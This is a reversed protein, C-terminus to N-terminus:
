ASSPMRSLTADRPSPSTYLLCFLEKEYVDDSSLNNSLIKVKKMLGEFLPSQDELSEIIREWFRFMKRVSYEEENFIIPIVKQNLIPDQEIAYSLRLLLSTKGMGRKGEILYHQEPFEMTTSQIEKFLKKFLKDRVVFSRILDERSQIKPNYIAAITKKSRNM